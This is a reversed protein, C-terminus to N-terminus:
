PQMVRLVAHGGVNELPFFLNHTQPDVAVTHARAALHGRGLMRVGRGDVAFVTLVAFWTSRKTMTSGKRPRTCGHAPGALM